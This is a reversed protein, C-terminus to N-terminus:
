DHMRMTLSAFLTEWAEFSRGRGYEQDIAERARSGMEAQMVPDQALQLIFRALGQADGPSFSAGCAHRAVTAGIEGSADGVFAVPRGAAAIGYFKSPVIYGELAPNLSVVHLDAAGLSFPLLDRPVYPRFDVSRLGHRAAFDRAADVRAGGGIFLFRIREHEKLAAAAGLLTDVDHSRGLNGSYCVVFSDALRWETRLPNSGHPLPRISEDDAWNPVVAIRSRDLGRGYLYAAMREGLVVNAAAARLSRDRLNRLLGALRGSLVRVGLATGIEPFIDQLWNVLRAGRIRTVAAMLVGILPPDTKAIVVDGRRAAYLVRACASAYFSLYDITRGALNARGFRSTPIRVIRVGFATERPALRATADEYSLRSTVVEVEYGKAALHVALDTLIQSTASLDPYFFRNVFFLTPM